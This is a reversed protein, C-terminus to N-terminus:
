SDRAPMRPGLIKNFYRNSYLYKKIFFIAEIAGKNLVGGSDKSIQTLREIIAREREPRYVATGSDHKIEGVREVVKMRKNLLELIDNDISDITRRCDELTKM